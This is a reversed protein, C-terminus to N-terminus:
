DASQSVRALVEDERMILLDDPLDDNLDALKIGALASFQIRDGVKLVDVKPGVARVVGRNQPEVNTTKVLGSETTEKAADRQVVLRNGLPQISIMMM